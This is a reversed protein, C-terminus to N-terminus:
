GRSGAHQQRLEAAIQELWPGRSTAALSLFIEKARDLHAMAQDLEGRDTDAYALAVLAMAVGPIFGARQRLELSEALAARAADDKGADHHAFGIHRIAYSAIVLDGAAKATRYAQEFYPLAQAHDRRVVGYVLGVHFQSEAIARPDGGQRRLEWGREFLELESAPEQREVSELFAAHLSMGRADLVDGLLLPEGAREARAQAEDLLAEREALTDCAGFMGEDTLVRALALCIRAVAADSQDTAVPLVGRLLVLADDWRGHLRWIDSLDAADRLLRTALEADENTQREKAESM